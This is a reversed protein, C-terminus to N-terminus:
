LRVYEFFFIVSYILTSSVFAFRLKCCRSGTTLNLGLKTGFERAMNILAALVPRSPFWKNWNADPYPIDLSRLRVKVTPVVSSIRFTNVMLSTTRVSILWKLFQCRTWSICHQANSSVTNCRASRFLPFVNTANEKCDHFYKACMSFSILICNCNWGWIWSFAFSM